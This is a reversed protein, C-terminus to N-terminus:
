LKKLHERMNVDGKNLPRWKDAIAKQMLGCKNCRRGVALVSDANPRAQWLIHEYLWWHKCKM